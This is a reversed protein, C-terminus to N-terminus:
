QWWVYICSSVASAASHSTIFIKEVFIEVFYFIHRKFENRPMFTNNLYLEYGTPDNHMKDREWECECTSYIISAREIHHDTRDVFFFFPFMIQDLRNWDWTAASSRTSRMRHLSLYIHKSLRHRQIKICVPHHRAVHSRVVSILQILQLGVTVVVRDKFHNVPRVVKNYGTFLTKVLNTEDTSAWAAGLICLVGHTCICVAQLQSIQCLTLPRPLKNHSKARWPAEETHQFINM